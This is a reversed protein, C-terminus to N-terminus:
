EDITSRKIDFHDLVDNFMENQEDLLDVCKNIKWYWCIIERLILFIAPLLLVLLILYTATADM